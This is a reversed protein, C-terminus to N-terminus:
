NLIEFMYEKAYTKIWRGIQFIFNRQISQFYIYEITMRDSGFKRIGIKELLGITEPQKRYNVCNDDHSLREFGNQFPKTLEFWETTEGNQGYLRIEVKDDTGSFLESGM